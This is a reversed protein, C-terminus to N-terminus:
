RLPTEAIRSGTGPYDRHLPVGRRRRSARGRGDAKPVQRTEVAFENFFPGSFRRRIGAAELRRRGCAGTRRQARGVRTARAPGDARSLRRCGARQAFSQHLHQFDRTRAPYAARADGVDPLVRAARATGRKDSWAGRCRAYRRWVPLLLGAGPGGYQPPLGFSQGRGSRYRRWSGRRRSRDLALAEPPRASSRRAPVIPSQPLRRWRSSWGFMRSPRGAVVCPTAPRQPLKFAM